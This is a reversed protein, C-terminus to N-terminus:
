IQSRDSSDMIHCFEAKGHKRIAMIRGAIRVRKQQDPDFNEIIQSAFFTRKFSFPYPNIGLKKIQKLKEYRVKQFETLQQM